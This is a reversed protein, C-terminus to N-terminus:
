RMMLLLTMSNIMTDRYTTNIFPTTVKLSPSSSGDDDDDDNYHPPSYPKAGLNLASQVYRDLFSLKNDVQYIFLRSFFHYSVTYAIMCGFCDNHIM